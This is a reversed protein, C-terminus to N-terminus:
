KDTTKKEPTVVEWKSNLKSSKMTYDDIFLGGNTVIFKGVIYKEKGPKKYIHVQEKSKFYTTDSCNYYYEKADEYNNFSETKTPKYEYIIDTWRSGVKRDFSGKFDFYHPHTNDITFILKTNKEGKSIQKLSITGYDTVIVTKEVGNINQQGLRNHAIEEPTQSAAICTILILVNILVLRKM